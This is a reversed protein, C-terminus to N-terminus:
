LNKTRFTLIDEYYLGEGEYTTSDETTVLVAESQAQAIQLAELWHRCEQPSSSVFCEDHIDKGAQLRIAFSNPKDLGAQSGELVFTFSTALTISKLPKESTETQTKTPEEIFIELINDRVRVFHSVWNEGEDTTIKYQLLGQKHKVRSFVSRNLIPAYDPSKDSQQKTAHTKLKELSNSIEDHISKINAPVDSSDGLETLLRQLSPLFIPLNQLFTSIQTPDLNEIPLLFQTTAM